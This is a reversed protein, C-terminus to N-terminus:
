HASASGRARPAEGVRISLAAILFAVVMAGLALLWAVQASSTIDAPQRSTLLTASVAFGAISGIIRMTMNVGSADGRLDPPVQGMTAANTAPVTFSVGVGILSLGLMMPTTQDHSAAIALVGYGLVGLGTGALMPTKVGIRDALRGTFPPLILWWLGYALLVLGVVTPSFEFVRTLFYVLLLWTLAMAAYVIAIVATGAVYNSSSVLRAITRGSKASTPAPTHPAVSRRVTVLAVVSILANLGFIWRWSMHEAFVGGIVPSALVALAGIFAWLGFARGRSDAPVADVIIALLGSFLIGVGLGEILRGTILMPFNPSILCAASGITVLVLGAIATRQRGFRDGFRGAAILVAADAILFALVTWGVHGSGVGLDEQISPLAVLLAFENLAGILLPIGAWIVTRRWDTGLHTASGANTMALFDLTLCGAHEPVRRDNSAFRHRWSSPETM